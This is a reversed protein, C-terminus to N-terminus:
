CPFINNQLKFNMKVEPDLKETLHKDKQELISIMLVSAVDGKNYVMDVLQGVRDEQVQNAQLIQNAERGTLVPPNSSRLGDIVDKLVAESVRAILELRVKSLEDASL